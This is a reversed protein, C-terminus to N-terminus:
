IYGQLTPNVATMFGNTGGFCQSFQNALNTYSAGQLTLIMSTFATPSTFTNQFYQCTYYLSPMIIALVIAYIFLLLCFFFMIFCIFYILYRCSLMKFCKMFIIIILILLAQGLIVGYFIISYNLNYSDLNSLLKFLNQMQTNLSDLNGQIGALVTDAVTIQVGMDGANLHPSVASAATTISSMNAHINNAVYTYFTGLLSSTVGYSGILPGLISSFTGTTSSSDLPRNYTQSFGPISALGTLVSNTDAIVTSMISGVNSNLKTIETNIDNLKPSMVNTLQNRIESVGSFFYQQNLTQNGNYFDDLFKAAQCNFDAFFSKANTMSPIATGIILLCVLILIVTPWTLESNSYNPNKNRCCKPPCSEQCTCCCLLCPFSLILLALGIIFPSIFIITGTGNIQIETMLDGFNSNVLDVVLRTANAKMYSSMSSQYGSNTTRDSQLVSVAGNPCYTSVM